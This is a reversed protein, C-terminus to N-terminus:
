AAKSRALLMEAIREAAAEYAAAGPHFSDYRSLRQPSVIDQMKVVEVLPDEEFTAALAQDWYGVYRDIQRAMPHRPVPNYGGLLFIRADPNLTRLEAVVTQLRQLITEALGLPEKMAQDRVGPLRFLDNAGISLVITDANTVARRVRDQKMRSLLDTTQAGNVGLNKTESTIGRRRLAEELRGALGEHQEDGAGYALSDGLTVVHLPQQLTFTRTMTKQSSRGPQVPARDNPVRDNARGCSFTLFLLLIAIGRTPKVVDSVTRVVLWRRGINPLRAGASNTM